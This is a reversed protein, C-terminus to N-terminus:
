QVKNSLLDYNILNQAVLYMKLRNLNVSNVIILNTYFSNPM